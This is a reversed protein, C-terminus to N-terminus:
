PPYFVAICDLSFIVAIKYTFNRTMKECFASLGAVIDYWIPHM